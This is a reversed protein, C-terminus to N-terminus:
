AVGWGYALKHAELVFFTETSVVGPTKQLRELLYETYHQMDRCVVEIIVDFSGSTVVVYSTEDHEALLRCVQRAQGPKCSIGIMALHDFGINLPNAIGVIQLIGADELRQVRYRVSSAPVGTELAIDKFSKRGDKQLIAILRKDIEDLNNVAGGRKPHM